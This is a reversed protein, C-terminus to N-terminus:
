LCLNPILESVLSFIFVLVYMYIFCISLKGEWPGKEKLSEISYTMVEYKWFVEM